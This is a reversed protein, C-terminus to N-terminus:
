PGSTRSVPSSICDLRKTPTKLTPRIPTSPMEAHPPLPPDVVLPAAVPLEDPEALVVVVEDVDPPVPPLPTLLVVFLEPLEVLLEPVLEPDDVPEVLLPVVLPPDVV